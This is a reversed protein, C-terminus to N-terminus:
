QGNQSSKKKYIMDNQASAENAENGHRRGGNHILCCVAM